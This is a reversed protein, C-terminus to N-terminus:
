IKKQKIILFVLNKKLEEAKLFPIDLSKAIADTIDAGGRNVTHYNKIIGFEVISLKTRSAGFDILLM